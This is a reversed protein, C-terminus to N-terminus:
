WITLYSYNLMKFWKLEREQSPIDYLLSSSWLRPNKEAEDGPEMAEEDNM